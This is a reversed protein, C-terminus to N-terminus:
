AEGGRRPDYQLLAPSVGGKRFKVIELFVKDADSFAPTAIMLQYYGGDPPLWLLMKQDVTRLVFVREDGIRTVEFKGSGISRLLGQRLERRRGQVLSPKFAGFQVSAEITDADRVTFVRGQRVLSSRGAKAFGVEAIPERRVEFGSVSAPVLKEPLKGSLRTETSSACSGLFMMLVAFPLIRRLRKISQAPSIRSMVRRLAGRRAWAPWLNPVESSYPEQLSVRLGISLFRSLAPQAKVLRKTVSASMAEAAGADEERLDRVLDGWLARTVLWALERHEDDSSIRQIFDLPTEASHLTLDAAADRFEAYAVLIRDAPDTGAWKRRRRTRLLKAVAPFGWLLALVGAVVPLLAALWYRVYTYLLRVTTRQVPVYVVLALEDTPQVNPDTKQKQDNLSARARPPVGVVPVWGHGTFNVELWTAGHRPHVEFRNEKRDGSYYGYGIRSPIGAWRALLAEAASIEFPTGEQGSMMQVVRAPPIDVPAGAGSAIVNQYFRSRVFQLRDWPNQPAERLLVIVENPPEPADLFAKMDEAPAPAEALAAGGAPVPSEITYSLGRPARQDATRLSQTRPDFNLAASPARVLLPNAVGPVAHGEIDSIIFTTKQVGEDAPLQAPTKSTKDEPLEVLTSSDYPPLLWGKGDYVDLVGLRWPGPRDSVVNFIVRDGALPQAKPRQPPIVQSRERAPFLFDARSLAAVVGVLVLISVLGRLLRRVEFSGSSAGRGALESGFAAAQASVLLGISVTSSVLETGEPQVLSAAMVVPVPLFAGLKSRKAGLSVSAAASGLLAFVLVMLFKWGPDFPVPPQRLGGATLAEGILGFLNATGGSLDPLVLGIAVLVSVPLVSYQIAAPRRSYQSLAILGVGILCGLLGIWRASGSRFVGGAMWAASGSALLASALGMITSPPRESEPLPPPTALDPADSPRPPAITTM